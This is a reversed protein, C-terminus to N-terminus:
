LGGGGERVTTQIEVEEMREEMEDQQRHLLGRLAGGDDSTDSQHSVYRFM